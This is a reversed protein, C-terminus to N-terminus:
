KGHMWGGGGPGHIKKAINVAVTFFVNKLIKKKFKNFENINKLSQMNLQPIFHKIKNGWNNATKDLDVHILIEKDLSLRVLYAALIFLLRNRAYTMIRIM